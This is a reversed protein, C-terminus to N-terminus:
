CILVRDFVQAKSNQSFNVQAGAVSAPLADHINYEVIIVKHSTAIAAEVRFTLPQLKLVILPSSFSEDGINSHFSTSTTNRSWFYSIMEPKFSPSLILRINVHFM